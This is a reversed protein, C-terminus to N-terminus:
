YTNRLANVNRQLDRPAIDYGSAHLGCWNVGALLGDQNLGPVWRECFEGWPTPVPWFGQYAAVDRIVALARSESSWFPMARKGDSGFPAPFGDDDRISWVVGCNAVERCFALAQPAATSM